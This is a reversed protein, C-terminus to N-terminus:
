EWWQGFTGDVINATRGNGNPSCARAVPIERITATRIDDPFDRIVIQAVERAEERTECVGVVKTATPTQVEIIWASDDQGFIEFPEYQVETIPNAM